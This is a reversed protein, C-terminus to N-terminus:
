AWRSLGSRNVGLVCFDKISLRAVWSSYSRMLLGSSWIRFRYHREPLVALMVVEGPPFGKRAFWNLHQGPLDAILRGQHKGCPM